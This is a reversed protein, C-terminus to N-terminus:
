LIGDGDEDRNDDIEDMPMLGMSVLMSDAMRSTHPEYGLKARKENPTLYSCAELATYVDTQDGMLDNVQEVDYTIKSVDPYFPLLFSSLSGYVIKLLPIVTTQVTQRYAESMNSYTKNQSDGLVEPSIGYAISVERAAIATGQVYDMEVSTMGLSTAKKGDDLIMGKGANGSGSYATRLQDSMGELQSDTLARPVEIIISGKAGNKTMSINWERIANQMEVSKKASVIPSCGRVETTDPNHLKIHILDQPGLLMTGATGRNVTWREIPEFPDGSTEVTVLQPSVIHLRKVGSITKIPFVFAEGYIGLNTGIETFFENRDMFPNPNEILKLLPHDARDIQQGDTGFILTEPRAVFAGYLDSARRVYPNNLYGSKAQGRTTSLTDAEQFLDSLEKASIGRGTSSKALRKFLGM